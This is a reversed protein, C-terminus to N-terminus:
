YSYSSIIRMRSQGPTIGCPLTFTNNQIPGGVGFATNGTSPGTWGTSMFETASFNGDRNLDIWMYINIVYNYVTAGNTMSASLGMTYKSGSSLTFASKSAVLAWGNTTGNVTSSTGANCADASKSFLTNNSIDTLQMREIVGYRISSTYDCGYYSYPICYTQSFSVSSVFLGVLLFLLGIARNKSTFIKTM